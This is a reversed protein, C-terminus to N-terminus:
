SEPRPSPKSSLKDFDISTLDPKGGPTGYDFESYILLQQELDKSIFSTAM